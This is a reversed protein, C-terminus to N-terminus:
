VFNRLSTLGTNIKRFTFRSELYKSMKASSFLMIIINLIAFYKVTTKDCQGTLCLYQIKNYQM